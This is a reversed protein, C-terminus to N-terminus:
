GYMQTKTKMEFVNNIYANNNNYDISNLACKECILLIKLM